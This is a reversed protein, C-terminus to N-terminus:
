NKFPDYFKVEGVKDGFIVGKVGSQNVALFTNIRKTATYTSLLRL